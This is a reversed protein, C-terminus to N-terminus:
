GQEPDGFRFSNGVGCCPEAGRETAEELARAHGRDPTGRTSRVAVRDGLTPHLGDFRLAQSAHDEEARCREVAGETGVLKM